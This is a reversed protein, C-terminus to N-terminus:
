KRRSKRRATLWQDLDERRFLPPRTGPMSHVNGLSHHNLITKSARRCYTAAETVTLYPTEVPRTEVKPRREKEWVLNGPRYPLTADKQQVIGNSFPCLGVELLFQPFDFPETDGFTVPIFLLPRM